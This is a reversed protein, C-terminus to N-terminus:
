LEEPRQLCRDVAQLYRAGTAADTARRDASLTATVVPRVDIVGDVACPREVVRGFGALAVQPSRVVDFVSEVGLDGLETVTITADSVESGRLGGTRARTVLDTLDAMLRPLQLTDANHLAPAVLGGGPLPVTVGLHVGTGATFRDGTWFGNLEPVERAALAAAKFLLASPPLREAAPRGRNHENLWGIATTMDITTSLRYHPVHPIRPVRAGERDTGASPGARRAAERVTSRGAARGAEPAAEQAAKTGASRGAAARRVDSARVAGHTGTGRVAGLDVSFVEALRRALPTAPIQPPPTVADVAQDVDARTVRGGRGSGHVADLDVGRREALHRILPGVETHALEGGAKEEESEERTEEAPDIWALPTGVPVSAGPEVLVREVTGAASCRVEVTADSTEVVAVPDGTRVEDGPGVLWERLTGAEVGAGLSPMTFRAYPSTSM